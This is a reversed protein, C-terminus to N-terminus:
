DGEVLGDLDQKGPALTQAPICPPLAHAVRHPVLQALLPAPPEIPSQPEGFAQM